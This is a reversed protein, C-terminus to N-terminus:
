ITTGMAAKGTVLKTEVEIVNGHATVIFTIKGMRCHRGFAKSIPVSCLYRFRRAFPSSSGSSDRLAGSCDDGTNRVASNLLENITNQQEVITTM